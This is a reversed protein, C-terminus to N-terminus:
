LIHLVLARRVMLTSHSSGRRWLSSSRSRRRSYRRDKLADVDFELEIRLMNQAPGSRVAWFPGAVKLRTLYTQPFFVYGDLFPRKGKLSLISFINADEAGYAQWAELFPWDDEAGLQGQAPEFMGFKYSRLEPFDEKL